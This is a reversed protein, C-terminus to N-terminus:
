VKRIIRNPCSIDSGQLLEWAFVNVKLHALGILCESLTRNLAERPLLWPPLLPLSEGEDLRSDPSRAAESYPFLGTYTLFPFVGM